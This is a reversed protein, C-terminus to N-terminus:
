EYYYFKYDLEINYNPMKNIENNLYLQTEEKSLGSPTTIRPFVKKFNSNKSFYNRSLTIKESVEEHIPIQLPQYKSFIIEKGNIERKYTPMEILLEGKENAEGLFTILCFLGEKPIMVRKKLKHQISKRQLTKKDIFYYEPENLLSDSPLNDVNEQFSIKILSLPNKEINNIKMWMDDVRIPITIEDLYCKQDSTEVKLPIALEYGYTGFDCFLHDKLKPKKHTLFVKKIGQTIKIENIQNKKQSLYIVDSINKIEIQKTEYSLHSIQIKEIGHYNLNVEGYENAYFGHGNLLDISVFEVPKHTLSDKIQFKLKQSFCISVTLLLTIIKM